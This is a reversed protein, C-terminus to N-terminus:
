RAYRYKYRKLIDGNQDKVLQLRGAADYVYYIVVNREDTVSSVGVSPDYTYSSMTANVPAIRIDDIYGTGAISITDQGVVKHVFLNWGNVTSQLSPSGITGLVIHPM